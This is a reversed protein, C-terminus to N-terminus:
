DKVTKARPVIDIYPLGLAKKVLITEGADNGEIAHGLFQLLYGGVFAGLAWWYHQQFLWVASVIFTLPLGIVHLVQNAPHQHRQIYNIVFNLMDRNRGPASTAWDEPTNDGAESSKALEAVPIRSGSGVESIYRM